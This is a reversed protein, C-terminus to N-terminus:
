PLEEVRMAIQGEMLNIELRYFPISCFKGDITWKKVDEAVDERKKLIWIVSDMDKLAPILASSGVTQGPELDKLMALAQKGRESDAKYLGNFQPM